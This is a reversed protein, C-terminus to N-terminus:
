VGELKETYNDLVSVGRAFNFGSVFLVLVALLDSFLFRIFSNQPYGEVNWVVGFLVIIVCLSGLEFRLIRFLFGFFDFVLFILLYMLGAVLGGLLGFDAISVLLLSDASDFYVGMKAEIDPQPSNPKQPYLFKPISSGWFRLIGDGLWPESNAELMRSSAVYLGLARSETTKKASGRDTSFNGFGYEVINLLSHFPRDKDFSVDNFRFANYFPFFVQWLVVSLVVAGFVLSKSFVISRRLSYLIILSSVLLLVLSRRPMFVYYVFFLSLAFICLRLNFKSQIKGSILVFILIPVALFVLSNVLQTISSDAYSLNADLLEEMKVTYSYRPLLYVVAIVALVVFFVGQMVGFRHVSIMKLYKSFNIVSDRDGCMKTWIYDGLLLVAIMSSYVIFQTLSNSWLFLNDSNWSQYSNANSLLPVVSFNISLFVILLDVVNLEQRKWIKLLPYSMPLCSVASLVRVSDFDM